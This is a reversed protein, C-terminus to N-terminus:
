RGAPSSSEACSALWAEVDVRRFRVHGGIRYGAPGEGRHRWAYLTTLPVGLLESLDSLSM